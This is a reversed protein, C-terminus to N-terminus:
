GPRWINNWEQWFYDRDTLIAWGQFPLTSAGTERCYALWEDSNRRLGQINTGKYKSLLTAGQRYYIYGALSVTVIRAGLRVCHMNFISDECPVGDRFFRIREGLRNGGSLFGSTYVKNWAYNFLRLETLQQVDKPTLCGYVHEEPLDWKQVEEDVWIVNVGFLGIDCDAANMREITQSYCDPLVEDDSDVFAIYRGRARDLGLNRAEGLGVNEENWLWSIRRDAWIGGEVRSRLEDQDPSGDDICIVEDEDSIAALVSKVCRCWWEFRNRYGPIIVSLRM